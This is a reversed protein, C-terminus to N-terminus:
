EDSVESDAIFYRRGDDPPAVARAAQKAMNIITANKETLMERIKKPPDDAAKAQMWLQDAIEEPQYILHTTLVDEFAAIKRRLTEIDILAGMKELYIQTEKQYKVEQLNADAIAKRRKIERDSTVVPMQVYGSDGLDPLPPPPPPPLPEFDVSPIPPPPSPRPGIEVQRVEEVLESEDPHGNPELEPVPKAHFKTGTKKRVESWKKTKEIYAVVDPDHLDVRKRGRILVAPCRGEVVANQVATHSVGCLKAVQSMSTPKM